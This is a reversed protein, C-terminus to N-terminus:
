LVTEHYCNSGGHHVSAIINGTNLLSTPDVNLWNVIRLRDSKLFPAVPKLYDDSFDTFKKFKWIIQVNTKYLVDAIAMSM